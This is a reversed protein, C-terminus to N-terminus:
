SLIISDPISEFLAIQEAQLSFDGVPIQVDQINVRNWVRGLTIHPLFPQEKVLVGVEKLRNKIHSHLHKLESSHKIELAIYEKKTEWGLFVVRGTPILPMRLIDDRYEELIPNINEIKEPSLWGIFHITLHLYKAPSWSVIPEYDVLHIRSHNLIQKGTNESFSLAIYTAWHVM